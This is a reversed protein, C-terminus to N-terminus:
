KRYQIYFIDLMVQSIFNKLSIHLCHSNEGKPTAKYLPTPLCIDKPESRPHHHGASLQQALPLSHKHLYRHSGATSECMRQPTYTNEYSLM